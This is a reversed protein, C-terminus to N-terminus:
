RIDNGKKGHLFESESQFDKKRGDNQGKENQDVFLKGLGTGELSETVSM